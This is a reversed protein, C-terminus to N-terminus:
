IRKAQYLDNWRTYFFDDSFFQYSDFRIFLYIFLDFIKTLKYMTGFM